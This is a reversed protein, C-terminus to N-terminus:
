PFEIRLEILSEQCEAIGEKNGEIVAMQERTLTEFGYPYRM